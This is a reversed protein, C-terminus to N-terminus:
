ITINPNCLLWNQPESKMHYTSYRNEEKCEGFYKIRAGGNLASRKALNHMVKLITFYCSRYATRLSLDIRSKSRLTNRM